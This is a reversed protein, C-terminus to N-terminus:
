RRPDADPWWFRHLRLRCGWEGYRYWRGDECAPIGDLIVDLLWVASRLATLPRALLRERLKRHGADYGAM